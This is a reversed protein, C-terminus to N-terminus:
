RMVDDGAAAEWDASCPWCCSEDPLLFVAGSMCAAAGGAIEEAALCRKDASYEVM